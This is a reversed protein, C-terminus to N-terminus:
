ILAGHFPRAGGDPGILGLRQGIIINFSIDQLVTHLGCTKTIRHVSLM